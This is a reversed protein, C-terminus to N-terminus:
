PCPCNVEEGSAPRTELQPFGRICRGNDRMQLRQALRQSDRQLRKDAGLADQHHEWLASIAAAQSAEIGYYVWKGDRRTFVLGAQRILQLHNSLTSQSMELADSLECVCVDGERLAAIIRVRTPDSLAKAFLILDNM